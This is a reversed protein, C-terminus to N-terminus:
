LLPLLHVLRHTTHTHSSLTRPTPILSVLISITPHVPLPNVSGWLRLNGLLLLLPHFHLLDLRLVVMTHTLNTYITLQTCGVTIHPIGLQSLTHEYTWLYM